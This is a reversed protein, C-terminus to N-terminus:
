RLGLRAAKFRSMKKPGGEEEALPVEAQDDSNRVFGGERQVQRNRLRHYETSIENKLLGPDLDEPDDPASPTSTVGTFPREVLTDALIKSPPKPPGPAKPTSNFTKAISANAAAQTRAAKFKSVKKPGSGVDEIPAETSPARKSTSPQSIPTGTMASSAALLNAVSVEPAEQIDLQEAFRVGKKTPIRRAEKEDTEQNSTAGKREEMSYNPGVNVIADAKLKDSLAQMHKVYAEDLPKSRSTRGFKDEEESAEDDLEDDEQLSQSDYESASSLDDEMDIEAVIAGVEEMNYQIMQRRLAADEPSEDEPIVSEAMEIRELEDAERDSIEKLLTQESAKHSSAISPTSGDDADDVFSVKKELPESKTVSPEIKSKPNDRTVKEPMTRIQEAPEPTQQEKTGYQKVNSDKAAQEIAEVANIATQGPASTSSALLIEDIKNNLGASVCAHRVLSTAIKM